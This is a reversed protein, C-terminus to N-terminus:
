KEVTLRYCAPPERYPLCNMTRRGVHNLGAGDQGGVFHGSRARVSVTALQHIVLLLRERMCRVSGRDYDRVLSRLM